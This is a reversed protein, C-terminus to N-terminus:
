RLILFPTLQEMVEILRERIYLVVFTHIAISQLLCLSLKEAAAEGEHVLVVKTIIFRRGRVSHYNLPLFRCPKKRSLSCM